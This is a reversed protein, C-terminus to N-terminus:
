ICTANTAFGIHMVTRGFPMEILNMSCVSQLFEFAPMTALNVGTESRKLVVQSTSVTFAFVSFLIQNQFQNLNQEEMLDVAYDDDDLFSDPNKPTALPSWPLFISLRHCLRQLYDFRASAHELFESPTWKQICIDYKRFCRHCFDLMYPVCPCLAHGKCFSAWVVFNVM